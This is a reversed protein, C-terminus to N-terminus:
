AEEHCRNQGKSEWLQVEWTISEQPIGMLRSTRSAKQGGRVYAHGGGSLFMYAESDYESNRENLCHRSEFIKPSIHLLSSILFDLIWVEVTWLM